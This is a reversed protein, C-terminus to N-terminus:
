ARGPSAKAASASATACRRATASCTTSTPTRRISSSRAPQRPAAYNVIQRQLRPAVQVDDREEAPAPEVAQPAFQTQTPPTLFAFLPEANASNCSLAAAGILAAFAFSKSM